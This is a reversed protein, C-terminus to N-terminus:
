LWSQVANHEVTLDVFGSYDIMKIGEMVKDHMGRAKVDPELAYVTLNSMADKVKDSVKSNKVAAYIGDEILLIASGKAANNLCSDIANTDFPSKNVIHLLM